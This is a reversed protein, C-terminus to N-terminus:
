GQAHAEIEQLLQAFVAEGIPQELARELQRAKVARTLCAPSPCLYAGRGPAKGVPDWKVEGAQSRVVRLLERKPKMERCGVCMRMPVKRPKLPM